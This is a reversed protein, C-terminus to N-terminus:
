AHHGGGPGATLAIRRLLGPAARRSCGQEGSHIELVQRALDALAATSPIYGIGGAEAWPIIDEETERVAFAVIRMGPAIDLARRVAGAGDEVTADLLLVDAQM